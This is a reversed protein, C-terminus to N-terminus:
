SMKLRDENPEYPVYDPFEKAVLREATERDAETVRISYIQRDIRGNAGFNRNDLKAGCGCGAIEDEWISTKVGQLGAEKLVQRMRKWSAKDGKVEYVTVRKQFLRMAMRMDNKRISIDSKENLDLGIM